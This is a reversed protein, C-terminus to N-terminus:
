YEAHPDGKFMEVRRPDSLMHQGMHNYADREAPFYTMMRVVQRLHRMEVLLLENQVRQIRLENRLHSSEDWQPVGPDNEAIKEQKNSDYQPETEMRPESGPVQQRQAIRLPPLIAAGAVPGGRPAGAYDGDYEEEDDYRETQMNEEKDYKSIGVELPELSRQFKKRAPTRKRPETPPKPRQRRKGRRRNNTKPQFTCESEVDKLKAIHMADQKVRKSQGQRYLRDFRSERNSKGSHKTKNIKPKFMAPDVAENQRKMELEKKVALKEMGQRYLRDQNGKGSRKGRKEAM